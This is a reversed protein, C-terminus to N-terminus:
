KLKTDYCFFFFMHRLKLKFIHKSSNEPPGITKLTFVDYFFDHSKQPFGTLM